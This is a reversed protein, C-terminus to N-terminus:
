MTWFTSSTCPKLWRWSRMWRWWTMPSTAGNPKWDVPTMKKELVRGALSKFELKFELAKVDNELMGYEDMIQKGLSEFVQNVYFEGMEM